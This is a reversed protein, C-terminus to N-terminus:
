KFWLTEQKEEKVSNGVRNYEDLPRRCITSLLWHQNCCLGKSALALILRERHYYLAYFEYIRILESVLICFFFFSYSM